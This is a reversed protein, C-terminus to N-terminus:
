YVVHVLRTVTEERADTEVRIQMLYGGPPLLKGSPARGSWTFSRRHKEGGTSRLEAVPQGALNFISVRAKAMTTKLIVFSVNLQDNIGDGNPTLMKDHTIGFLLTRATVATPVHVQDAGPQLPLVSQRNDADLSNAVTVHFVSPSHVLRLAFRITVSNRRVFPPPLHVVLSGSSLESRVEVLAGDVAASKLTVDQSGPPLEILVQDFGPDNPAVDLPQLHYVFETLSDLVAEGPELYGSLGGTIVPEDMVFTINRLKPMVEPDDSILRAKAKLWRRPSPSQFSQGSFRHSSWTSWTRDYVQEVVVDGRNRDKAADYASKTVERGNTLFYHTIADFGDGTRTQVELRTGAPLDADWELRRISFAETLMVEESELEVQAPYGESHFIFLQLARCTGADRISRWLILRANRPPFQFDYLFRRPLTENDVRSLLEYQYPGEVEPDSSNSPSGDSVLFDIDSWRCARDREGSYILPSTGLVIPLWVLRNVRFISGLDVVSWIGLSRWGGTAASEITWRRRSLDTDILADAGSGKGCGSCDRSDSTWTRGGWVQEGQALRDEFEVRTALNFGVARVEVEALAAGPLIDTSEFRIFRVIEFNLTDSSILFPATVGSRDITTLDFDVVRRTNATVPKLRTYVIRRQLGGFVTAGPSTFVSFFRFPRANTTDAFILRIRDAVVARGLDIEIWWKKPTNDASPQWWTHADQDTVRDASSQAYPTRVTRSGFEGITQSVFSDANAVANFNTGFRKVEVGDPTVNVLGRPHHWTAFDEVSFTLRVSAESTRSVICVVLIFNALRFMEPLYSLM